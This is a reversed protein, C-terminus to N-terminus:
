LWRNQFSSILAGFGFSEEDESSSDLVISHARTKSRTAYPHSNQPTKKDHIKNTLTIPLTTDPAQNSPSADGQSKQVTMSEGYM